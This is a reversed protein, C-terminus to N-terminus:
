RNYPYEQIWNFKRNLLPFHDKTFRKSKLYVTDKRFVGDMVLTSDNLEYKFQYREPSNRFWLSINRHVTDIETNFWAGQKKMNFVAIFDNYDSAIYRWRKNDTLLPPRTEGNIKFEVIEYLGYFLPKEAMPGYDYLAKFQGYVSYGIFVAILSWKVVTKPRTYKKKVVGYFHTIKNFSDGFLFARIRGFQPSIIVLATLLYSASHLKVPIDYFLNLALINSTVAVLLIGGLFTTRKHLLCLAGFLEIYGTMMQYGTSYGLFSWALGMPSMEGLNSILRSFIPAPFQLPFVKALGYGIMIAALSYRLYVWFWLNLKRYDRKNKDILTWIIAGIIAISFFLLAQLYDFLRDGSGTVSNTIENELGLISNGFFGVVWTILDNYWEGVKSLFPMYNIPFPLMSLGFFLFLTRFFFKNKTLVM